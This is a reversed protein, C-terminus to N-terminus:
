MGLRLYADGIRLRGTLAQDFAYLIALTGLAHSIALPLINPHRAYIACWALGGAFTVATLFPNPLHVIAFLSAAVLVATRPSTVRQAERLVLTQLVWQQACAWVALGGFSGLFDRRDHLTGLWAGAVLIAVVAPVTVLAAARLGPLTARWDFGWERHRASRWAALVAVLVMPVAAFGRPALPDILWTYSLIIGLVASTLWV